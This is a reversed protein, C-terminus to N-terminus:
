QTKLPIRADEVDTVFLARWQSTRMEISFLRFNLFSDINSGHGRFESLCARAQTQASDNGQSEKILQSEISERKSLSTCLLCQDFFRVRLTLSLPLVCLINKDLYTKIM